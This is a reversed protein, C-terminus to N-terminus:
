MQKRSNENKGILKYALKKGDILSLKKESVIKIDVKKRFIKKKKM